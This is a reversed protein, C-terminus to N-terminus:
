KTSPRSPNHPSRSPSRRSNSRSCPSRSPSCRSRNRSYPSRSRSCLSHSKSFLSRRLRSSFGIAARAAFYQATVSAALGLLAMLVLLLVSRWVVPVANQRLGEDVLRAIILPVILEFVAELLKFAPGLICERRYRKLGSWFDKM